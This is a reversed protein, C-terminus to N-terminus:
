QMREKGLERGIAAINGRHRALLERLEAETPPGTRVRPAQQSPSGAGPPAPPPYGVGGVTAPSLPPPATSVADIRRREGYARMHDAVAEPLHPADFTGTGALA